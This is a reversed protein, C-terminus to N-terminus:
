YYEDEDSGFILERIVQFTQQMMPWAMTVAVLVSNALVFLRMMEAGDNSRLWTTFGQNDSDDDLPAVPKKQGKSKTRQDKSKKDDSSNGSGSNNGQRDQNQSKKGKGAGNNNDKTDFAIRKKTGGSATSRAEKRNPLISTGIHPADM